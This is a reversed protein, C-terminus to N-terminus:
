VGSEVCGERSSVDRDRSVPKVGRQCVVRTPPTTSANQKSTRFQSRCPAASFRCSREVDMTLQWGLGQWAVGDAVSRWQAGKEGARAEGGVTGAVGRRRGNDAVM